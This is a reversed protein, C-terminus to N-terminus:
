ERAKQRHADLEERARRLRAESLAKALAPHDRLWRYFTQRSTGLEHATGSVECDAGEYTEVVRKIAAREDKQLLELVPHVNM